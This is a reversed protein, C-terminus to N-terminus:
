PKRRKSHWSRRYLTLDEEPYAMHLRIHGFAVDVQGNKHVAEVMGHTGAELVQYTEGAESLCYASDLVVHDSIELPLDAKTLM